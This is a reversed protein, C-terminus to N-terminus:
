TNRADWRVKNPNTVPELVRTNVMGDSRIKPLVLRRKMASGTPLRRGDTLCDIHKRSVLDRHHYRIKTRIASVGHLAVPASRYDIEIALGSAVFGTWFAVGVQM